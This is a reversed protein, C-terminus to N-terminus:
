KKSKRLVESQTDVDLVFGYFSFYPNTSNETGEIQLLVGNDTNALFTTIYGTLQGIPKYKTLIRSSRSLIRSRLKVGQARNAFAIIERIIKIDYNGLSIPALEFYASIPQGGTGATTQADGSVLTADTYKGKDWVTGITDGMYLRNKKSSNFYRAFITMSNYYERWDWTSTAINYKLVLNSYSIGNVTVAGIYLHYIEDVIEAFFNAPSSNRIFDIIEGSINQPQSGTSVWVGDTNAWLMYPGITKITRHNSCGTDWIKKFSSQDYYYASQDTFVMLRDWNSAGGTIQYCFDVDLFGGTSSDPAGTTSWTIAGASVPSSAVIRFPYATAGYFCNLVYLRDRYHVIYKGQPMGGVNTVTSFTTGTLSGVPLFNGSSDAGVFFCYGIFGQMEVNQNAVGNWASSLSINSWSGSGNARYFLQTNADGSENCTALMKETSSNQIFQYAGLISKGAQLTNSGARSYGPDKTIAGLKYSNTCGNLAAPADVPHILPSINTNAGKLFSLFPIKM